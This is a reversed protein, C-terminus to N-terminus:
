LSVLGDKSGWIEDLLMVKREQLVLRHKGHSNEYKKYNDDYLQSYTTALFRMGNSDLKRSYAVFDDVQQQHHFIFLNSPFVRYRKGWDTERWQGSEFFRKYNLMKDYITQMPETANDCELFFFKANGRATYIYIGFADPRVKSERIRGNDSYHFKLVKESHWTHIKGVTHGDIVGIQRNL